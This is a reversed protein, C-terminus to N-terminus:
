ELSRKAGIKNVKYVYSACIKQSIASKAFISYRADLMWGVTIAVVVGRTPMMM